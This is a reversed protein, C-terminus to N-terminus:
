QCSIIRVFVLIHNVMWLIYSFWQYILSGHFLLFSLSISFCFFSPKLNWYRYRYWNYTKPKPWKLEDYRGNWSMMDAIDTNDWDLQTMDAIDTDPMFIWYRHIIQVKWLIKDQWLEDQEELHMAQSSKCRFYLAQLM